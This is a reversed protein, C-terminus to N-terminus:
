LACTYLQYTSNSYEWKTLIPSKDSIKEIADRDRQSQIYSSAQLLQLLLKPRQNQNRYIIIHLNETHNYFTLRVTTPVEPLQDEITEVKDSPVTPLDAIVPELDAMLLKDLEEVVASEDEQLCNHHFQSVFATIYDHNYLKLTKISLGYDITMAACFCIHSNGQKYTEENCVQVSSHHSMDKKMM